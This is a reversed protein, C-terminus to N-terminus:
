RSADGASRAKRCANRMATTAADIGPAADLGRIAAILAKARADDIGAEGCLSHTMGVAIDWTLSYADAGEDQWELVAGDQLRAIVKPRYRVRGADAVVEVKPVIALVDSATFSNLGDFTATGTTWALAACFPVSMFTQPFTSFPGAFRVGFFDAEFPHMQVTLSQLPTSQASERLKAAGRVVGRHFQCIPYPKYTIAEMEFHSGLRETLRAGYTRGTEGYARFFGARGDLASPAATAGAAALRAAVIGNAAATGAQLAYDESGAEAYERLGSAMNAALALAHAMKKEDLNLLLGAAAAAGFVGYAPTTRFGRASLDAAHDRGIRLAVEYGAALAAILRPGNAGAAEGMALAAPVVVVGVHGAPHADDQVRAHFLTGNALAACIPDVKRGDFFRVAKGGGAAPFAEVVQRAQESRLGAAGVALAYLLCAKAKVIIAPPLRSRDLGAAFRALALLNEGTHAARHAPSAAATTM